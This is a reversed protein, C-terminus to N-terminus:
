EREKLALWIIGGVTVVILYQVFLQHVDMPVLVSTRAEYPPTLIFSHGYNTEVGRRRFHYPPFLLMLILIGATILLVMRQKKRMTYQEETRRKLGEGPRENGQEAGPGTGKDRKVAFEDVYRQLIPSLEPKALGEGKKPSEPTGGTSGGGPIARGNEM